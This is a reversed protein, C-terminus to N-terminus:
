PLLQYSLDDNSDRRLVGGVALAGALRQAGGEVTLRLSLTQARLEVVSLDRVFPRSRVHSMARAYDGPSRIGTLTLRLTEEGGGIVGWVPLGASKLAAELAPPDFQATMILQNKEDATYSLSRLLQNARALVPGTRGSGKLSSGSVRGIVEALAERLAKDRVQPSQDEVAVSAGYADLSIEPNQAHACVSLLAVLGFILERM